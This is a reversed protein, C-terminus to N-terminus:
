PTWRGVPLLGLHMYGVSRTTCCLNRQVARDVPGSFDIYLIKRTRTGERRKYGTVCSAVHHIRPLGSGTQGGFFPNM